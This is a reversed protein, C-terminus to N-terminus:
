LLHLDTLPQRYAVRVLLLRLADLVLDLPPRLGAAVSLLQVHRGCVLTLHAAGHICVVLQLHRLRRSLVLQLVHLLLLLVLAAVDRVLHVHAADTARGVLVVQVEVRDLAMARRRLVLVKGVADAVESRVGRAAQLEHVRVTNRALAEAILDFVHCLHNVHTLM